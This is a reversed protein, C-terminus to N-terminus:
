PRKSAGRRLIILRQGFLSNRGQSSSVLRANLSSLDAKALMVNEIGIDRLTAVYDWISPIRLKYPDGCYSDVPIGDNHAQGPPFYCDGCVRIANPDPPKPVARAVKDKNM